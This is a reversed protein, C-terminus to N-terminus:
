NEPPHAEDDTLYYSDGKERAADILGEGVIYAVVSAASMILAGIQTTEAESKGLYILLGTIFGVIAAWFKRSTLKRIIDDKTMTNDGKTVIREPESHECAWCVIRGEPIEAGCCVCHNTM